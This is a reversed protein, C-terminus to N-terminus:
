DNIGAEKAADKTRQDDGGYLQYNCRYLPYTWNAKERNPDLQKAKVLYGMAEEYLPRIQDMAEKPVRGTTGAARNELNSAHDLQCAGLYTLIQANDPQAALAKKFYGVADELKQEMMANQGRVAWVVFNNPDSQLKKNFLAEMEKDMKLGSYMNVLSGFLQENDPDNAFQGELEKVYNLSDQRTKLGEQEIALKLNNAEKAFQPDKAAVDAFKMCGKNDKNQAAYLAAYYAMQGINEDPTKAVQEVFLPEAYSDVCKAFYKYTNADDGRNLYYIGGNWLNGRHPYLQAAVTEHFKPAVKGKENPMQDYKECEVAAEMANYIGQYFAMSDVEVKNGKGMQESVQNEAMKAQEKTVTEMALTYLKNYAKAKEAPSALQGLTSDLLSKAEAYTKAKLITKLAPSDGAFAISAAVSMLAVIMLKRMKM